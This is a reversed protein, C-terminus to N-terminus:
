AATAAPSSSLAATGSGIPIPASLPPATDVGRCVALWDDFAIDWRLGAHGLRGIFGVYLGEAMAFVEGPRGCLVSHSPDANAPKVCLLRVEGFRRFAAHLRHMHEPQIDASKFVIIKEGAALEALFKDRLYVVRRCAKPYFAAADVQARSMFTHIHLGWRKDKIFTESGDEAFWLETHEPEGMRALGADLAALLDGFPVWNWRLLGLPEAGYRRQVMGFECDDGVSEFGLLLRCAAEDKVRAVEVPMPRDPSDMADAELALRQAVVARGLHDWGHMNWPLLLRFRRWIAIAADYDERAMALKGRAIMVGPHLPFRLRARRLAEDAEDFRKLHTLAAVIGFHSEASFRSTRFKAPNFSAGRRLRQWLEIARAHDGVREAVLAAERVIALDDPFRRLGAAAADSAEGPPLHLRADAIRERCAVASPM